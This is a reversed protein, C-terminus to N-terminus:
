EAMGNRKYSHVFVLMCRKDGANDHKFTQCLSNAFLPHMCALRGMMDCDAPEGTLM